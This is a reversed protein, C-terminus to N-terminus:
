FPPPDCRAWVEGALVGARRGNEVNGAGGRGDKEGRESVAEERRFSCIGM